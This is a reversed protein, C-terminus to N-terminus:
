LVLEKANYNKIFILESYYNLYVRSSIGSQRFITYMYIICHVRRIVSVKTCLSRDKIRPIDKIPTNVKTVEGGGGVEDLILKIAM